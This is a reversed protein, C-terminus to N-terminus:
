NRKILTSHLHKIKWQKNQRTLIATELWEIHIDKTDKTIVSQLRYTVWATAKDTEVTIFDFANTRKFDASQNTTIAKKILSDINWIQGYEYFTIDASCYLQLSVPDRDSLAEFMKVITQRIVEQEKKSLKEQAETCATFAIVIALMIIKKVAM